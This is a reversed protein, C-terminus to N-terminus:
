LHNKLALMLGFIMQVFGVIVASKMKYSNLFTIKNVASQWIQSVGRIIISFCNEFFFFVSLRVKVTSYDRM